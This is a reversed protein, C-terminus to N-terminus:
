DGEDRVLMECGKLKAAEEGRVVMSLRSVITVKVKAGAVVGGPLNGGNCVIEAARASYIKWRVEADPTVIEAGKKTTVRQRLYVGGCVLTAGLSAAVMVWGCGVGGPLMRCSMVKCTPMTVQNSYLAWEVHLALGIILSQAAIMLGAERITGTFLKERNQVM